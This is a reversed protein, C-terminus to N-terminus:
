EIRPWGSCWRDILNLIIRLDLIKIFNMVIMFILYKLELLISQWILIGHLCFKNFFSLIHLPRYLRSNRFLALFKTGFNLRFIILNMILLILKWTLYYAILWYIWFHLFVFLLWVIKSYVCFGFLYVIIIICCYPIFSIFYLVWQLYTIVCLFLFCPNLPISRLSYSIWKQLFM